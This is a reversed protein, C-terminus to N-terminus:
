ARRTGMGRGPPGRGSRSHRSRFLPVGRLAWSSGQAKAEEPAPWEKNRGVVNSDKPKNEKAM